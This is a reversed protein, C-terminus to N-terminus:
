RRPTCLIYTFFPYVYSKNIEGEPMFLSKDIANRDSAQISFVLFFVARYSWRATNTEKMRIHEALM